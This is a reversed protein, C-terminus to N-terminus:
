MISAYSSSFDRKTSRIMPNSIHCDSRAVVRKFRPHFNLYALSGFDRKSFPVGRTFYLITSLNKFSVCMSYLPFWLSCFFTLDLFLKYCVHLLCVAIRARLYFIGLGNAVISTINNMVIDQM